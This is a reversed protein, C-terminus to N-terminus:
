WIRRRRRRFVLNTLDDEIKIDNEFQGIQFPVSDFTADGVAGVMFAPYTRCLGKQSLLGMLKPLAKQVIGPVEAQSGTVDKLGIIALTNPHLESDRSERFKVGLFPNLSDHVKAAIKGYKIDDSYAFTSVGSAARSATRVAYDKDSWGGGYGM